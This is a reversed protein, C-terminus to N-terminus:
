RVSAPADVTPPPVSGLPATDEPLPVAEAEGARRM